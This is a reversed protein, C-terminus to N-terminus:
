QLTKKKKKAPKMSKLVTRMLMAAEERLNNELIYTYFTEVEETAKFTKIAATVEPSVKKAKPKKTATRAM